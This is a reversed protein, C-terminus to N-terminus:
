SHLLSSPGMFLIADFDNLFQKFTTLKGMQRTKKLKENQQKLGGTSRTGNMENAGGASLRGDTRRDMRVDM